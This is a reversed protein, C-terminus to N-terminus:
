EIIWRQFLGTRNLICYALNACQKESYPILAAEAYNELEDVANFVGDIPHQPNYVMQQVKQEHEFLMQPTVKGYVKFLHRIIEAITGQLRGTTYNCLVELYQPEVAAVVQQKFANEVGTVEKFIRLRETHQDRMTRAMHLTMGAPVILQGPHNLRHYEANSLLAYRRPSLVVGLHGHTGGGLDSHVTQANVMVEKHLQWVGEFMPEGHIKTLTPHEFATTRYDVTPTTM